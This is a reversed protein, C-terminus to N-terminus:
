AIAAGWPCCDTAWSRQLRRIELSVVLDCGSGNARIGAAHVAERPQRRALVVDQYEVAFEQHEVATLGAPNWFLASADDALSSYAGGMAIARPGVPAQAWSVSGSGLVVVFSLLLRQHRVLCWAAINM